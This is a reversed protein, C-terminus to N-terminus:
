CTHLPPQLAKTAPRCRTEPYWCCLRGMKAGLRRWIAMDFTDPNEVGLVVALTKDFCGHRRCHVVHQMGWVASSRSCARVGEVLGSCSVGGLACDIYMM